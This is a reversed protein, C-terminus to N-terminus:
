LERVDYNLLFISQALIEVHRPNFESEPALHHISTELSSHAREHWINCIILKSWHKINFFNSWFQVSGRPSCLM